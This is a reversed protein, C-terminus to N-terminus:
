TTLKWHVTVKVNAQATGKTIFPVGSEGGIQVGFELAMSEPTPLDSIGEKLPTLFLSSYSRIVNVITEKFKKTREGVDEIFGVAQLDDAEEDDYQIYIESGDTGVIKTLKLTM